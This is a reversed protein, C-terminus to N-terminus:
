RKLRPKTIGANKAELDLLWKKTELGGFGGYGALSGGAGIIRHCPIIFSIPNTAQVGGVARAALPKGVEAAIDGYSSTGGYPVAMVAKRVAIQFPTMASWDVKVEFRKRKGALFEEMQRLVTAVKRPDYVLAVPGRQLIEARFEVEDMGYAGAWVGRPSVAVWLPALRSKPSQGYYVIPLSKVTKRSM